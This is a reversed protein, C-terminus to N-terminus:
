LFYHSPSGQRAPEEPQGGAGSRHEVSATSAVKTGEPKADNREYEPLLARRIFRADMAECHKHGAAFVAAFTLSIM